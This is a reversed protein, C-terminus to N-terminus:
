GRRVDSEVDELAAALVVLSADSQPEAGYLLDQIEAGPRGTRTAIAAVVAAPAARPGLGLVDSLRRVTATRLEDAAAGRARAVRLLRARGRVTEAAPVVVPLPEVVVAGVRRGRWAAVLLVVVVIQLLAWLLRAPLLAFLGKHDTDAPSSTPPRPLLWIVEPETSLLGLALAANGEDALRANTWASASGLVVVSRGSTQDVLLGAGGGSPYCTTLTGESEYVLGAFRVTGAVDAPGFNCGSALTQDGVAGAPRAPVALADLERSTPAVTVVVASSDHLQALDTASLSRPDPIFVAAAGPEAPVTTATSVTVGRQRL